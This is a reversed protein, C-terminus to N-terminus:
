EFPSCPPSFGGHFSSYLNGSATSTYECFVRKFEKLKDLDSKASDLDRKNDDVDSHLNEVQEELDTVKSTGAKDDLDSRLREVDSRLSDTESTGDSGGRDSSFLLSLRALTKADVQRQAKLTAIQFNLANIQDQFPVSPKPSTQQAVLVLPILLFIAAYKVQRKM